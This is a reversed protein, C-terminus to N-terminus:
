ICATYPIETDWRWSYDDLDFHPFDFTIFVQIM